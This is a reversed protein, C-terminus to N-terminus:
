GGVGGNLVTTALSADSFPLVRGGVSQTTEHGKGAILVVDGPMAGEIALAIAAARDPEVVVEGSTGPLIDSIIALPDERRPNDSTVVV